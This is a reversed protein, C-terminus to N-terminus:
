FQGYTRKTWPIGERVVLNIAKIFYAKGDSATAYDERIEVIQHQTWWNQVWSHRSIGDMRVGIIPVSHSQGRDGTPTGQYVLSINRGFVNTQNMIKFTLVGPGYTKMWEADIKNFETFQLEPDGHVIENIVDSVKGGQNFIYLELMSSIDGNFVKMDVVAGANRTESSRSTLCYQQMIAAYIFCIGSKQVRRRFVCDGDLCGPDDRHFVYSM